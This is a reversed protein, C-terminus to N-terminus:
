GQSPPKVSPHQTTSRPLPMFVVNGAPYNIDVVWLVTTKEEAAKQVRRLSGKDKGEYCLFDGWRQKGALAVWFFGDPAETDPPLLTVKAEFMKNPDSILAPAEQPPAATKKMEEIFDDKAVIDARAKRLQARSIWLLVALVAVAALSICVTVSVVVFATPSM